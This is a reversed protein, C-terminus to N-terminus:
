FERCMTREVEYDETVVIRFERDKQHMKRYKMFGQAQELTEIDWHGTQEWKGDRYCDISYTTRIPRRAPQQIPGQRAASPRMDWLVAALLLAWIAQTLSFIYFPIVGEGKEQDHLM